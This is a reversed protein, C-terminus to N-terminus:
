PRVAEILLANLVSAAWPSGGRTGRNTIRQVHLCQRLKEKCERTGVFGVPLGVVLHPSWKQERVLRLTEEVATPADGILLIVDNGYKEWARRIGTASRTLGFAEAMVRTEEDHVTCSVTLGLRALLPRRLGSQVMTVDTVIVARKHIAALGAEAAGHSLFLDDVIDFDGTTHVLRKLIAQNLPPYPSWDRGQDIIEFSQAEIPHPIYPGTEPAPAPPPMAGSTARVHFHHGQQPLGVEKEYGIVQTRYKCLSCNMAAEGRVAEDARELLADALHPHVGLHPAKVVDLRPFDKGLADAAEWIRKVLVGTFLFFPFVILRRYGLRAALPLGEALRPLATGSYCVYSGGFGMGEELLRALKSVDSNADPDTTGRGVVVLCTESRPLTSTASAEAEIIRERCLKLISPHFRLGAGFHFAVHPYERRLQQVESPMDNKAHTAALLVGPVVAVQSAGEEVVAKAAEDITPRSFELFGHSITRGPAREKLLAIFAEFERVGEPDRSGHGAVVIAPASPNM